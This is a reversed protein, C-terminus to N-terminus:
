RSSRIWRVSRRWSRWGTKGPMRIDSLVLDPKESELSDLAKQGSEAVSVDYGEGRFLVQLTDLISTEDDVLLVKPADSM